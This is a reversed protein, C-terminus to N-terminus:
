HALTECRQHVPVIEVLFKAPKEVQSVQMTMSPHVCYIRGSSKFFVKFMAAHFVLVIQKPSNRPVAHGPRAFCSTCSQPLFVLNTEISVDVVLNIIIIIIIIIIIKHTDRTMPRKKGTSRKFWRHDGGSM